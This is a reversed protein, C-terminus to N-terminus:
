KGDEGIRSLTAEAQEIWTEAATWGMDVPTHGSSMPEAHNSMSDGCHCSGSDLSCHKLNGLMSEVLKVLEARDAELQTIRPDPTATLIRDVAEQAEGSSVGRRVRVMVGAHDDWCSMEEIHQIVEAVQDRTADAWIHFQISYHLCDILWNEADTPSGSRESLRHRNMADVADDAIARAAAYYTDGDRCDFRDHSEICRALLDRMAGNLDSM